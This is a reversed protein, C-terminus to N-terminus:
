GQAQKCQQKGQQQAEQQQTRRCVKVDNLMMVVKPSLDKLSSKMLNSSWNFKLQNWDIQVEISSSQMSLPVIYEASLM